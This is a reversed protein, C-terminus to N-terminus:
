ISTGGMIYKYIQQKEIINVRSIIQQIYLKLHIKNVYYDNHVYPRVKKFIKMNQLVFFNLRIYLDIMRLHFVKEIEKWLYKDYNLIIGNVIIMNKAVDGSFYLYNQVKKQIDVPLLHIYLFTM